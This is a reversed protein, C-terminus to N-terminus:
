EQIVDAELLLEPPITLGLNAATKLNIFLEVERLRQVPMDAPKAGNLIDAVYNAALRWMVGQKLTYGMLRGEDVPGRSFYIGPMREKNALARFLEAQTGTGDLPEGGLLIFADVKQAVMASMTTEAQADAPVEFPLIQLASRQAAVRIAALQLPHVPNDTMLVGIRHARPVVESILEIPKAAWAVGADTAGTVNGGPHALSAVLGSGVPDSVNLVVIPITATARMAALAGPTTEAVIVDPKLAILEGVLAPFRSNVGETGRIELILNQGEVYGRARMEKRFSAPKAGPLPAVGQTVIGVLRHRRPAPPAFAALPAACLGVAAAARLFVSRNM